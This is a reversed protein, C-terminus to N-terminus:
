KEPLSCSRVPQLVFRRIETKYRVLAVDRDRVARKYGKNEIRGEGCECPQRQDECAEHSKIVQKHYKSPVDVFTYKDYMDISGVARGPLGSEGAIAGLIDGPKLKQKKGVNLFLRVMDKDDKRRGKGKGKGKAESEWMYQEQALDDQQEGLADGLELKLFAAALDMATARM